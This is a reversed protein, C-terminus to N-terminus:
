VLIILAVDTGLLFRSYEAVPLTFRVALSSTLQKPKIGPQSLLTTIHYAQQIGM